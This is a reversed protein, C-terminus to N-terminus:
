AKEVKLMAFSVSKMTRVRQSWPVTSLITRECNDSASVQMQAREETSTISPLLQEISHETKSPVLVTLAIASLPPLQFENSLLMLLWFLTQPTELKLMAFCVSKMTRVRRSWPVTSLITTECHDSASVQMQATEETTTM